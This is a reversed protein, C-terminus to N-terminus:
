EKNITDEHNSEGKQRQQIFRMVNEIYYEKDLIVSMAHDANSTIILKSETKTIGYLISSNKSDILTDSDGHIYLVPCQINQVVGRPSVDRYYFGFMIKNLISFVYMYWKPLFPIMKRMQSYLQDQLDAYPCDVVLLDVKDELAAYLLTTSAGMSEGHIVVYNTRKQQEKTWKIVEQLDDKEYYGMSTYSGGSDGHYRHDYLLVNFGKNYYMEFYRLSTANNVTYGHVIIVTKNSNNDFWKCNLKYGYKSHIQFQRKDLKNHEKECFTQNTLEYELCEKYLLVKPKMVRRTISVSILILVIVVGVLFYFFGM